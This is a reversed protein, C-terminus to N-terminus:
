SPTEELSFLEIYLLAAEPDSAVLRSIEADVIGQASADHITHITNCPCQKAIRLRQAGIRKALLWALADTTTQWGVTPIWNAAISPDHEIDREYFGRVRVLFSQGGPGHLSAQIASWSELPKCEPLLECAVQWTADLLEVCRWHMEPESLQPYVSHLMRMSEVTEGGGVIIYTRENSATHVSGCLTHIPGQFLTSGGIKLVSNTTKLPSESGFPLEFEPIATAGEGKSMRSM